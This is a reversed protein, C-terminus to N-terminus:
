KRITDEQKAHAQSFFFTPFEGVQERCAARSDTDARCRGTPPQRTQGEQDVGETLTENESSCAGRCGGAVEVKLQTGLRHV